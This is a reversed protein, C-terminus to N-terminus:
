APLFAEVFRGHCPLPFISFSSPPHIGLPGLEMANSLSDCIGSSNDLSCTSSIIFLNTKAALLDISAPNLQM